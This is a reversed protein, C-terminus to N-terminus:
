AYFDIGTDHSRQILLNQVSGTTEAGTEGGQSSRGGSRQGQEGSNALGQQQGSQQQGQQQSQQQVSSQTLQIGQQALMEKLRPLTQEVAERSHQQQVVFQVSAQQDQGVSLQIQMKGLGMPELELEAEHWKQGIMLSVREALQQAGRNGSGLDVSALERYTDAAKSSLHSNDGAGVTGHETSATRQLASHSSIAGAMNEPTATTTVAGTPITEGKSVLQSSVSGEGAKDASTAPGEKDEATLLSLGQAKGTKGSTSSKALSNVQTTEAAESATEVPSLAKEAAGAHNLSFFSTLAGKDVQNGAQSSTSTDVQAQLPSTASASKHERSSSTTQQEPHDKGEESGQVSQDIGSALESPLDAPEHATGPTVAACEGDEGKVSEEGHEPVLCQNLSSPLKKGGTADSAAETSGADPDAQPEDSKVATAATTVVATVTNARIATDASLSDQLHQLFDVDEESQKASDAKSKKSEKIDLKDDDAVQAAEEQSPATDGSALAEPKGKSESSSLKGQATTKEDPKGQDKIVEAFSSKGAADGSQVPASRTDMVPESVSSINLQLM